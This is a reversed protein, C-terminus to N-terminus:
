GIEGFGPKRGVAVTTGEEEESIIVNYFNQNEGLEFRLNERDLTYIDGGPKCEKTIDIDTAGGTRSGAVSSSHEIKKARIECLRGKTGYLIIIESDTTRVYFETLNIIKESIDGGTFIGHDVVRKGELDIEESLDFVKVDEKEFRTSISVASIGLIIGVIILAAIIFIQGRKNM